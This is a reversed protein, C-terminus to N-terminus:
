KDAEQLECLPQGWKEVGHANNVGAHAREDMDAGGVCTYWHNITAKIDTIDLMM